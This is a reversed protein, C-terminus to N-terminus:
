LAGALGAASGAALVVPLAATLSDIRDLMGGHGPLLRGSDKVGAQRKVMSEFLDGLVSALVTVAAVALLAPGIAAPVVGFAFAATVVVLALVLGGLLGEVTKGPSVAPALRRRGFARGAFYAGTDAAWVWLLVFMVAWPGALGFLGRDQIEVLAAWSPVLVLLGIAALLPTRHWLRSGRPYAVVLVLAGAWALAAVRALVGSATALEGVVMALVLLVCWLTRAAPGTRGMLGSWEWGAALFFVGAVWRFLDRDLLFVAGLVVPLLLLATVVRLKLM